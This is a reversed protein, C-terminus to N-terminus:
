NRDPVLFAPLSWFGYRACWDQFSRRDAMYARMTSKAESDRQCASVLAAGETPFRAADSEAIEVSDADLQGVIDDLDVQKEYYKTYAEDIAAEDDHVIIRGYVARIGISGFGWSPGRSGFGADPERASLDRAPLRQGRVVLLRLVHM